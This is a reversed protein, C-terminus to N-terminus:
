QPVGNYEMFVTLSVQGIDKGGSSLSWQLQQQPADKKYEPAVLFLQAPYTSQPELHYTTAKAEPTWGEPLTPHLVVDQAQDTDNHLLLPVWLSRGSSLASQPKLFSMVSTLGHARYFVQYFAWPGGLELSVPGRQPAQYGPPPAYPAATADIGDWVDAELPSKVLSKALLLYDPMHVYYDLGPDTQTAYAEWAQKNLVAYPVGKSSSVDSSLYVPGRHALFDQHSADSFFYLKKAQWPHLGEGYNNIGQYSKPANIQEAFVAPDGAIDFAETAIVSSAQHDGHNEGAVYGPMWTLVVEPRTLRILRVVEELAEGHGVTELSHLVDQTPTDIGHLFWVDTISSLALSHRAELEREDAMAKAQEMGIANGGGNGRTTFVVSIRKHQDLSARTIYNLIGTDDDPHAVVLLIDAKYRDDPKPLAPATTVAQAPLRAPLLGALLMAGLLAAGPTRKM